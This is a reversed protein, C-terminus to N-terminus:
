PVLSSNVSRIQDGVRDASLHQRDDEFRSLAGAAGCDLVGPLDHHSCREWIPDLGQQVLVQEAWIAAKGPAGASLGSHADFSVNAEVGSIYWESREM